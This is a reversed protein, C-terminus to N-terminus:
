QAASPQSAATQSPATPTVTESEVLAAAKTTTESKGSLIAQIQEEEERKRRAVEEQEKKKREEAELRKRKEDELLDEKLRELRSKNILFRFAAESPFKIFAQDPLQVSQGKEITNGNVQIARKGTNKLVFAIKQSKHLTPSPTPTTTKASGAAINSPTNNGDNVTVGSINDGSAIGEDGDGGVWQATLLAQKRSMSSFTRPSYLTLDIDVSQVEASKRGLVSEIKTVPLTCFEGDFVAYAEPKPIFRELRIMKSVDRTQQHSLKTTPLVLPTSTSALQPSSFKAAGDNSAENHFDDSKPTPTSEDDKDEAIADGKKSKKKKKSADNSKNIDKRKRKKSSASGPLSHMPVVERPRPAFPGGTGSLPQSHHVSTTDHALEDGECEVAPPEYSEYEEIQEKTLQARYYERLKKWNSATHHFHLITNYEGARKLRYFHAELTKVTRTPHFHEKYQDLVVPAALYGHKEVQEKIIDDEERTWPIRRTMQMLSLMGTSARGAEIEIQAIQPATMSKEAAEKLLLDDQPSWKHFKSLTHRQDEKLLHSTIPISNCTLVRKRKMPPQSPLPPLLSLTEYNPPAPM